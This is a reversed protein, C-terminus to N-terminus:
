RLAMLHKGTTEHRLDGAILWVQTVDWTQRAAATWISLSGLGSSGSAVLFRGEMAAEAIATGFGISTYVGCHVQEHARM